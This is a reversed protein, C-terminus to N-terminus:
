LLIVKKKLQQALVEMLEIHERLSLKASQIKPAEKINIYHIKFITIVM